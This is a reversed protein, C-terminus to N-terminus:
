HCDIVRLYHYYIRDIMRTQQQKEATFLYIAISKRVILLDARLCRM